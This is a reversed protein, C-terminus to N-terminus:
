NAKRQRFAKQMVSQKLMAKITGGPAALKQHLDELDCGDSKDDEQRGNVFEFYNKVMCTHAKGSDAIYQGLEVANALEKTDSPDLAPAAKTDVPLQSVVTASLDQFRAEKDRFRGLSDYNESLYGLTNLTKHCGWCAPDQTVADLAQRTTMAPDHTLPKINLGPPPPPVPTCLIRTRIRLGKIVPRTYESNSAVMAARTLLGSRQGAPLSVLHDSTGDWVDVGYIKALTPTKAFSYPSTLIDDLRGDTNLAYHASLDLVEQIMDARHTTPITVGAAAALAQDALINGDTGPMLTKDLTLWERFFGLVGQEAKPDALVADVLPGLNEDKTIDTQAIKDYLADTPPSAWFLFTVKSLLEWSTLRYTGDAIVDGDSDFRYYFNPHALFRGVLAALGDSGAAVTDKYFGKFDDVEAPALPRRFSKRGYYQVFSTLCADEALSKKTSGPGCVKLMENAYPKTSDSIQAAAAVALGFIGDVHDQTVNTDNQSYFDSVDTPILDLRTQLAALLQAKADDAFPSFLESVANTVYVKALRKIPTVAAPANPDCAFAQPAAPGADGNDGARPNPPQTDDGGGCAALALGTLGILAFLRHM